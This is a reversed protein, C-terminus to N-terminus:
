KPRLFASTTSTGVSNTAVCIYEGMDGQHAPFITLNVNNPASSVKVGNSLASSGTLDKHQCGLNYRIEHSFPHRYSRPTGCLKNNCPHTRNGTYCCEFCNTLGAERKGLGAIQSLTDCTPKSFCGSEFLPKGNYQTSKRVFCSKDQLDRLIRLENLEQKIELLQLYMFCLCATVGLFVILLFMVLVRGRTPFFSEDTAM